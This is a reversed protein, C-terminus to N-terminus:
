TAQIKAQVNTCSMATEQIQKDVQKCTKSANHVGPQLM